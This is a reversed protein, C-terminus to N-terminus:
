PDFNQLAFVQRAISKIEYLSKRGLPWIKEHARLAGLNVRIRERLARSATVNSDFIYASLQVIASLTVMCIIFQSQKVLPTPLALLSSIREAATLAKVTHLRYAELGSDAYDVEPDVPNGADMGVILITGLIRSADVLYAFSSFVVDVADFQREDYKLLTRPKPINGSEQMSHMLSTFCSRRWSEELIPNGERYQYAFQRSNMGIELTLSTALDLIERARPNEDNWHTAISYLMLAQVSFGNKPLQKSFLLNESLNKFSEPFPCHGCLSGIYRVVPAVADLSEQDVELRAMFHQKPLVMPHSEHFLSYYCELPLNLGTSSISTLSESNTVTEIAGPSDSDDTPINTQETSSTRSSEPGKTPSQATSGQNDRSVIKNHGGRRSQIYKCQWFRMECIQQSVPSLSLFGTATRYGPEPRTLPPPIAEQDLVHDGKQAMFTPPSLLWEASRFLDPSGDLMPLSDSFSM